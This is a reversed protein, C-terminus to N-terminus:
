AAEERYAPLTFAFEAGGPINQAWLRGGHAEIASRSIALGLGMGDPKTTYFREFVREPDTLGVGTDRVRVLLMDGEAATEIRVLRPGDGRAAVSEIANQLLNFIVQEIQVRDGHTRPIADALQVEVAIAARRAKWDLLRVVAFVADNVDVPGRESEGRRVTLRITRVIEAARRSQEAVERLAENLEPHPEQEGALRAAIDAQLCVAALPQNLEHALVTALEGAVALRGMRALDAEHARAAAEAKRRLLGLLTTMGIAFLALGRNALVKWMETTGRESVIEMKAVTLVVCL